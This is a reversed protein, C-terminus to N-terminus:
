IGSYLIKLTLSVESEMFASFGYLQEAAMFNKLLVEVVFFFLVVSKCVM